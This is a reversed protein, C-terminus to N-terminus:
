ASRWPAPRPGTRARSVSRSCDPEANVIFNIDGQRYLTVNKSRHRAVLPFGLKEFLARLLRTRRRSSSSSSATPAWRIAFLDAM